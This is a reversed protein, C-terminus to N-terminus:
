YWSPHPDHEAQTRMKRLASAVEAPVVHPRSTLAAARAEAASGAKVVFRYYVGVIPIMVSDPFDGASHMSDLSAMNVFREPGHTIEFWPESAVWQHRRNTIRCGSLYPGFRVWATDLEAGRAAHGIVPPRPCAFGLEPEGASPTSAASAHLVALAFGALAGSRLLRLVVM